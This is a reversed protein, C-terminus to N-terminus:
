NHDSEGGFTILIAIGQAGEPDAGSSYFHGCPSFFM